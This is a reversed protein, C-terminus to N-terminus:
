EDTNENETQSDSEETEDSKSEEDYVPLKNAAEKIEKFSKNYEFNKLYYRLVKDKTPVEIMGNQKVLIKFRDPGNCNDINDETTCNRDNSGSSTVDVQIEYTQNADSFETLPLIWVVGDATVFHGGNEFTAEQTCENNTKAVNLYTKFINCFKAKAADSGAAGGFTYGKYTATGTNSLSTGTNENGNGYWKDNNVMQNVVNSVETYVKKIMLQENNPRNQAISRIMLSAIIGIITVTILLETLTFARKIKM